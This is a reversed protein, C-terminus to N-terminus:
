MVDIVCNETGFPNPTKEAGPIDQIWSGDAFFKYEYRGSPLTLKTKWTGGRNKKLPLSGTDWTNFEGALFVERAEPANLNFETAKGNTKRKAM